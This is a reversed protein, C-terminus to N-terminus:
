RRSARDQFPTRNATRRFAREDNRLLLVRAALAITVPGGAATENYHDSARHMAIVLVM